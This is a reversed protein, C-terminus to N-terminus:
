HAVLRMELNGYEIPCVIGEPLLLHLDTESGSVIVHPVHHLKSERNFYWLGGSIDLIFENLHVSLFFIFNTAMERM